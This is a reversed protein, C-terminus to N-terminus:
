RVLRQGSTELLTPIQPVVIDLKNHLVSHLLVTQPLQPSRIFSRAQGVLAFQLEPLVSTQDLDLRPLAYASSLYRSSCRAYASCLSPTRLFM